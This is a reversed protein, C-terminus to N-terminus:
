EALRWRVRQFADAAFGRVGGARWRARGFQQVGTSFDQKAQNDGEGRDIWTVGHRDAARITEWLLMRGPSVKQAEPDYVPFWYSLHGAHLLGLHRALVRGGAALTTLVPRCDPDAATVLARVLALKAPDAFSDGVGTRAYQARKVEILSQVDGWSPQDTFTFRAAGYEKELRRMRRETDALFGKNAAGLAAFYAAPGAALDIVHGPRAEETSLGFAEQGETLHDVFMAGIGAKWLLVDPAIRFGPRAIVGAHDSMSGGIREALGMRREWPGAFQFPFFAAIEGSERFVAVRASPWAEGCARAFGATFFARRLHPTAAQADAWAAREHPDLAAPPKVEAALAPRNSM